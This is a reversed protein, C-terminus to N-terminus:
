KESFFKDIPGNTFGIANNKITVLHTDWGIRADYTYPKVTIDDSIIDKHERRLIKLLDVKSGSFEVVTEMSKELSGRQPRYKM